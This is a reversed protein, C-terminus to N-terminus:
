TKTRANRPWVRHIKADREAIEEDTTLHSADVYKGAGEIQAKKAVESVTLPNDGSIVKIAVGQDAFYKFTEPANKRVPNMLTVLGLPTVKKSLKKGEIKGDYSAVLLVRYGKRSHKECEDAIKKYDDGLIFEPAGLVIHEGEFNVGSYKFESSFGSVSQVKRGTPETFFAKIAEMTVNDAKARLAFDSM